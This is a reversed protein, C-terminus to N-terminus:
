FTMDTKIIEFTLIDLNIEFKTVTSSLALSYAQEGEKLLSRESDTEWTNQRKLGSQSPPKM